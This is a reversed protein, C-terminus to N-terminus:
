SRAANLWRLGSSTDSAPRYECGIWGTYHLERLVSFVWGYDLEGRDPEQRLPVGAIQLHGVRGTPLYERLKTTVDGEVIQCHYLDMQVKLNPANVAQVIAHAEVQRNLIYGPIDRTNIPEILLTVGASRAQRAAWDLNERYCDLLAERPVGDPALGAMVHVNSCSLTTAYALAQEVGAQFEAQRGPLAALGREGRSTVGPPANFLVQSVGVADMRERVFAAPEAYPFMCEVGLFGDSAAAAYRDLFAYEQYMMSLNAAFKLM